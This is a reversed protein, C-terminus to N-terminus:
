DEYVMICDKNYNVKTIYGLDNLIKVPEFKDLGYRITHGKREMLIVPKYKKITELGGGIIFPEFGECDMKIFDVDILDLSDISKIPYDGQDNDPNVHTSFTSASTIIDVASEKEGLGFDYVVVNTLNFNLINKKLCERVPTNIEFAHVAQFKSNLHYSMLGYNAGADIAQRFNKVFCLAEELQNKQYDLITATKDGSKKISLELAKHLTKDGELVCWSDIM